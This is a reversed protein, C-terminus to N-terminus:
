RSAQQVYDGTRRQHTIRAIKNAVDKRRGLTITKQLRKGTDLDRWTPM